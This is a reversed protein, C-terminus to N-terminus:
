IRREKEDMKKIYEKLTLEYLKSLIKNERQLDSISKDFNLFEINKFHELGHIPCNLLCAYIAPGYFLKGEYGSIFGCDFQVISFPHNNKKLYSL